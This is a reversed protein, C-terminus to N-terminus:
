LENKLIDGTSLVINNPMLIISNPGIYNITNKNHNGWGLSVVDIWNFSKVSNDNTPYLKHSIVYPCMDNKILEFLLHHRYILYSTYTTNFVIKIDRCLVCFSIEQLIMMQDNKASAALRASQSTASIKFISGIVAM